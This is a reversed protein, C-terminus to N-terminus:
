EAEDNEHVLRDLLPMVVRRYLRELLPNAKIRQMLEYATSPKQGQRPARPVERILGANVAHGILKLRAQGTAKLVRRRQHNTTARGDERETKTLGHRNLGFARGIEVAEVRQKNDMAFASTVCTAGMGIALALFLHSRM